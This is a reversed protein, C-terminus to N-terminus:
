TKADLELRALNIAAGIDVGGAEARRMFAAAWAAASLLAGRMADALDRDPEPSVELIKALHVELSSRALDPSQLAADIVNLALLAGLPSVQPRTPDPTTTM